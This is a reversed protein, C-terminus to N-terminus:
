NLAKRIYDELKRQGWLWAPYLFPRGQTGPHRVQIGYIAYDGSISKWGGPAGRKPGALVKKSKIRIIHPRTGEEYAQSYSAHSIVEGTFGGNIIKQHIENTLHGSRVKSNSSHQRIKKKAMKHMENTAMTVGQRFDRNNKKIFREVDRDFSSTDLKVSIM